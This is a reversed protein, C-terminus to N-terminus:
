RILQIQQVSVRNGSRLRALYVGAPVRRGKDDRGNWELDVRGPTGQGQFLSAVRRGNVDLIELEVWSPQALELRLNLCETAPQPWVELGPVLAHTPDDEVGSGPGHMGLLWHPYLGVGILGGLPAFTDTDFIRIGPHEYSFDAVFLQKRPADILLHPYAYENSSTVTGLNEGTFVDFCIMSTSWTPSLAVAFGRLGDVTEWVNVDGGLTEETVIFGLSQEMEPDFREIGGDLEYYYGTEGILFHHSLPDIAILSSPNTALLPIGQTGPTDPDMDLLENTELDIVALYSPAVPLGQNDMDLRQVTVYLRDGHIALGHMEPRGDADALPSLDITDTHEGTSPDVEWLDPLDYRTVFARHEDVFCIDQPNSGAGTSFQLITGFGDQPDLVQINDGGYRNVVYILGDYFRAIADPYMPGLNDDHEWPADMEMLSYNGATYEYDCTLIFIYDGDPPDKTEDPLPFHEARASSVSGMLLPLPAALLLALLLLISVGCPATARTRACLPHKM